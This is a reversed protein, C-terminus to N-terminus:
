DVEEANDNGTGGDLLEDVDHYDLAHVIAQIEAESVTAGCLNCELHANETGAGGVRNCPTRTGSCSEQSCLHRTMWEYHKQWAAEEPSDEAEIVCRDCKCDFGYEQKLYQGRSVFDAALSALDAFSDEEADLVDTVAGEDLNATEIEGAAVAAAANADAIAAAVAAATAEEAEPDHEESDDDSNSDNSDDDDEGDEVETLDALLGEAEDQNGGDSDGESSGDALMDDGVMLGGEANGDNPDDDDAHADSDDSDSDSDGDDDDDPDTGAFNPLDMEPLVMSGNLSSPWGLEVYSQTIEMGVEIDVLARFRLALHASCDFRGRESVVPIIRGDPGRMMKVARGVASYDDDVDDEDEDEGEDDNSSGHHKKERDAAAEGAGGVVARTLMVM